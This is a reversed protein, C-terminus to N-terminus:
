FTIVSALNTLVFCPIVSLIEPMLNVASSISADTLCVTFSFNGSVFMWSIHSVTFSWVLSYYFNHSSFFEQGIVWLINEVYDKFFVGLRFFSSSISTCSGYLSCILNSWFLFDGRCMVILVHIM